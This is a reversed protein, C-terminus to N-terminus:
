FFICACTIKVLSAEARGWKRLKGTKDAANGREDATEVKPNSTHPHIVRCDYKREREHTADDADHENEYDEPPASVLLKTEARQIDRSIRPDESVVQTGASQQVMVDASDLDLLANYIADEVESVDM